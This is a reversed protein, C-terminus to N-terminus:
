EPQEELKINETAKEDIRLSDPDVVIFPKDELNENRVYIKGKFFFM